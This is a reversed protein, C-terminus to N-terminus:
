RLVVFSVDVISVTCYPRKEGQRWKLPKANERANGVMEEVRQESVPESSDVIVM